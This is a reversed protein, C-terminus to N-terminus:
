TGSRNQFELGQSISEKIRLVAGVPDKSLYIPRGIVVYDAGAQIAAQATSTRKQDDNEIIDQDSRIGPVMIIFDDGFYNRLTRAELGSVFLEM